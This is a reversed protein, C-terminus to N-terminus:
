SLDIVFAFNCYYINEKEEKRKTNKRNERKIRVCLITDLLFLVPDRCGMRKKVCSFLRIRYQLELAGVM